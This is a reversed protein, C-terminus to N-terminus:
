SVEKIVTSRFEPFTNRLHAVAHKSYLKSPKPREGKATAAAAETYQEAKNLLEVYRQMREVTM